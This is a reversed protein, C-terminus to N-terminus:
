EVLADSRRFRARARGGHWPSASERCRRSARTGRARAHGARSPCRRSRRRRCARRRRGSRPPSPARPPVRAARAARRRPASRPGGTELLFHRRVEARRGRPPDVQPLSRPMPPVRGAAQPTRAEGDTTHPHAREADQQEGDEAQRRAVRARHRRTGASSRLAEVREDDVAARRLLLVVLRVEQVHAPEEPEEGGRANGGVADRDEVGVARVRGGVHRDALQLGLLVEPKEAARMEPRREARRDDVRVGLQRAHVDLRGRLVRELFPEGRRSLPEAGAVGEEDVDRIVPRLVCAVRAVVADREPPAVRRDGHALEGAQEAREVVAHTTTVSM